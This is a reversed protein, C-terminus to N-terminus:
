GEEGNAFGIVSDVKRRPSAQRVIEFLSGSVGAPGAALPHCGIVSTAVEFTGLDAKYHIGCAQGWRLGAVTQAFHERAELLATPM